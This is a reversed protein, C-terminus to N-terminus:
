AVRQPRIEVAQQHRGGVQQQTEIADHSERDFDPLRAQGGILGAGHNYAVQHAAEPWDLMLRIGDGFGTGNEDHVIDLGVAIEQRASQGAIAMADSRRGATLLRKLREGVILEVEDQEVQHHGVDVSKVHKHAHLGILPHTRMGTM